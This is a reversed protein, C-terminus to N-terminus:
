GQYTGNEEGHKKKINVIREQQDSSALEVSSAVERMGKKSTVLCRHCFFVLDDDCMVDGLDTGAVKHVHQLARTDDLLPEAVVELGEGALEALRYKRLMGRTPIERLFEDVVGLTRLNIHLLHIGQQLLVLFLLLLLDLGQEVELVRTKGM